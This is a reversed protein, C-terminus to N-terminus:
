GEAPEDRAVLGVARGASLVSEMYVLLCLKELCGTPTKWKQESNTVLVCLDPKLLTAFNVLNEFDALFFLTQQILILLQHCKNQEVTDYGNLFVVVHFSTIGQM